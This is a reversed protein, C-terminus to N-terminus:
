VQIDLILPLLGPLPREGAIVRVGILGPAVLLAQKM